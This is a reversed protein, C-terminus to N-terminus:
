KERLTSSGAACGALVFCIFFSFTLNICLLAPPPEAEIGTQDKPALFVLNNNGVGNDGVAVM